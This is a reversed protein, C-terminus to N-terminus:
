QENLEPIVHQKPNFKNQIYQVIYTRMQKDLLQGFEIFRNFEQELEKEIDNIAM